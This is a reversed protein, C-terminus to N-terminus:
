LLGELEERHVARARADDVSIAGKRALQALSEEFTCSGETRSSTIEQHLHQLANRGGGARPLLMQTVVAALAQPPRSPLARISAAARGRERHLNVRYRSAGTRRISADAHGRARYHVAAHSPLIAEEIDDGDLPGDDLRRLVGNVRMAPAVGAVLYLDSGGAARLADLWSDLRTADAPRRLLAADLENVLRDLSDDDRDDLRRGTM